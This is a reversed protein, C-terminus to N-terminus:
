KVGMIKKIEKDYMEVFAQAQEKSKFYVLMEQSSQTHQLLLKKETNSYFVLYRDEWVDSWDPYFICDNSYQWLLILRGLKSLNVAKQALEKSPFANYNEIRKKDLQCYGGKEIFDGGIGGCSDFYSYGENIKPKWYEMSQQKPRELELEELLRMYDEYTNSVNLIHATGKRLHITTEKTLTDVGFSDWDQDCGELYLDVILDHKDAVDRKTGTIEMIVESGNNAEATLKM